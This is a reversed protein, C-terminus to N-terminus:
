ELRQTFEINTKLNDDYRVRVRTLLNAFQLTMSGSATANASLTVQTDSDISLITANKPIAAYNLDTAFVYQGVSYKITADTLGTIIPSGSAVTASESQVVDLERFDEIYHPSVQITTRTVTHGEKSYVFGGTAITGNQSNAIKQLIQNGDLENFPKSTTNAM